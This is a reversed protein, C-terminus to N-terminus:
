FYNEWCIMRYACVKCYTRRIAPPPKNMNKIRKIDKLVNKLIREDDKSLNVTYEESNEPVLLKGKVKLGKKSKLYWLYYKLQWKAANKVKSSKKIEYVIVSDESRELIDPSIRDIIITGKRGREEKYFMEIYKGIEVLDSEHEMTIKNAYFWLKRKCIFYYLIYVGGPLEM